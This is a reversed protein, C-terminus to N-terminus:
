EYRLIRIRISMQLWNWISGKQGTRLNSSLHVIKDPVTALSNLYWYSFLLLFKLASVEACSHM